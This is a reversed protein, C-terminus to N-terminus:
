PGGRGGHSRLWAEVESASVGAERLGERAAAAHTRARAGEGGVWLARALVFRAHALDVPSASQHELITLARELRARADELAGLELQARGLGVLLDALDPHDPEVVPEFLALARRYNARADEWEGLGLQAAGLFRGCPRLRAM